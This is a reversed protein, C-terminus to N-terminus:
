WPRSMVISRKYLLASYEEGLYKIPMTMVNFSMASALM